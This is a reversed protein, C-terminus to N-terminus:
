LPRKGTVHLASVDWFERRREVRPPERVCELIVVECVEHKERWIIWGVRELTAKATPM